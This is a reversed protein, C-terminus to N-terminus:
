NKAHQIAEIKHSYLYQAHLLQTTTYSLTRHHPAAFNQKALKLTVLGRALTLNQFYSRNIGEM